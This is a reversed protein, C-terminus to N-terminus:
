FFTTAINKKNSNLSGHIELWLGLSWCQFIFIQSNEIEKQFILSLIQM